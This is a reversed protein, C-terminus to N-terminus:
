ERDSEDGGTPADRVPAQRPSEQRESNPVKKAQTAQGAASHLLIDIARSLRDDADPTRVYRIEVVPLRRGEKVSSKVNLGAKKRKEGMVFVGESLESPM